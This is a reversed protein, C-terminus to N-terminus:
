REDGQPSVAVATGRWQVFLALSGGGVVAVLPTFAVPVAAVVLITAAVIVFASLTEWSTFYTYTKPASHTQTPESNPDPSQM